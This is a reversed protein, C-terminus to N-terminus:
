ASPPICHLNFLAHQKRTVQRSHLYTKQAVASPVAQFSTASKPIQASNHQTLLTLNPPKVNIKRIPSNYSTRSPRFHRSSPCTIIRSLSLYSLIRVPTPSIRAHQPCNLFMTRMSVDSTHLYTCVPLSPVHRTKNCSSSRCTRAKPRQDCPLSPIYTDVVSALFAPSPVASKGGRYLSVAPFTHSPPHHPRLHARSDSICM